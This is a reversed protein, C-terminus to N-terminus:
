SNQQRLGSVGSGCLSLNLSLKCIFGPKPDLAAQWFCHFSHFTIPTLSLKPKPQYVGLPAGSTFPCPVQEAGEGSIPVYNTNVDGFSPKKFGLLPSTASCQKEQVGKFGSSSHGLATRVACSPQLLWSAGQVKPFVHLLVPTVSIHKGQAGQAASSSPSALGRGLLIVRSHIM